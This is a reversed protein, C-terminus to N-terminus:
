AVTMMSATRCQHIYLHLFVTQPILTLNCASIVFDCLMGYLFAVFIVTISFLM